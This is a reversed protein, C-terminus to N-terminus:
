ENKNERIDRLEKEWIEDEIQIMKAVEVIIQYMSFLMETTINGIALCEEKALIRKARFLYNSVRDDVTSSM